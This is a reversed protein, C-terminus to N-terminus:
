RVQDVLNDADMLGGGKSPKRTAVPRRCVILPFFQGGDSEREQHSIARELQLCYQYCKHVHQLFPKMEQTVGEMGGISELTYSVGGPEIVRTCEHSQHVKAGLINCM